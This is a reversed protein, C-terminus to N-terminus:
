AAGDPREPVAEPSHGGGARLVRPPVRLEGRRRVARAGRGGAWGLVTCAAAAAVEPLTILIIGFLVSFNDKHNPLHYMNASVMPKPRM